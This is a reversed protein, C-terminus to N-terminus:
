RPQDPTDTETAALEKLKAVVWVRIEADSRGMQRAISVEDDLTGYEALERPYGARVWLNELMGTHGLPDAGSKLLDQAISKALRRAAELSSVPKLRMEDMAKPLVENVEFFTPHELAALRRVAPGYLGAELADWALKPMEDSGILNLSLRAEALERDFAMQDM